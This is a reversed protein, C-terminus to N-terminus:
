GFDGTAVKHEAADEFECLVNFTKLKPDASNVCATYGVVNCVVQNQRAAQVEARTRALSVGEEWQGDRFAAICMVLIVFSKALDSSYLCLCTAQNEGGVEACM